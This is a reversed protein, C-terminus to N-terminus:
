GQTLALDHDWAELLLKVDALFRSADAGDVLQHDYTLCLHALPRVEIRWDSGDEVAVPRHKVRTIALIGVEPPNLIPTDFESGRSGTNTLTFTGGEVDELDLARTRARDALDNLATALDPVTLRQADKVNAVMLGSDTDIAFGLNITGHYTATGASTDITANLKPHYPLAHCVARAVYALPSPPPAGSAKIAERAALVAGLDVEVAATLQASTQLSQLMRQAIVRRVRDLQETRPEGDLPNPTGELPLDAM